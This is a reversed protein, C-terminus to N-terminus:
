TFVFVSLMSCLSSKSRAVNIRLVYNSINVILPQSFFQFRAIVKQYVSLQLIQPCLTKLKAM